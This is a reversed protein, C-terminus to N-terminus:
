LRKAKGLIDEAIGTRALLRARNYGGCRVPSNIIVGIM